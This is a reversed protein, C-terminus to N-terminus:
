RYCCRAGIDINAASPGHVLSLAFIGAMPGNGNSDGRSAAAPLGTVWKGGESVAQGNVNWTADDAYDAGWPEIAPAGQGIAMDPGAQAWFAVWEKVNGVMDYAGWNSMCSNEVNVYWAKGTGRPGSSCTNCKGPIPDSSSCGPPELSPHPFAGPDPTGSAAAQWEENTCLYKDALHCAQQAQFFTLWRSPSVGPISCAYLKKTWNGNRAFYGQNNGLTAGTEEWNNFNGGYQTGTCNPEAFVSAEHRDIWFNGVKVMEDYKGEGMEKRCYFETALINADEVKEYGPPCDKLQSIAAAVANAVIQDVDAKTYYNNAVNEEVGAIKGDLSAVDGAQDLADAPVGGVTDANTCETCQAVAGVVNDGEVIITDGKQVYTAAPVGGLSECNASKLAYPVSILQLKDSFETNADMEIGLWKPAGDFTSLDFPTQSGLLVVFRGSVIDVEHTEVWVASEPLGDQADYLRFTFSHGAETVPQGDKSLEGVYTILLPVQALCVAPLSAALLVIIIITKKM